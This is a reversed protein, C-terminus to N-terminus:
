SKRLRGFASDAAARKEGDQGNKAAHRHDLYQRFIAADAHAPWKIRGSAGSVSYGSLSGIKALKSM